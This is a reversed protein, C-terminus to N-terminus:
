FEIIGFFKISNLLLNLLNTAISYKNLYEDFTFLYKNM